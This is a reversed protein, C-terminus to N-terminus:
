NQLWTALQVGTCAALLAASAQRRRTGKALRSRKGRFQGTIVSNEERRWIQPLEIVKATGGAVALGNEM